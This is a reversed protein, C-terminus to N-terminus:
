DFQYWDSESDDTSHIGHKPPYLFRDSSTSWVCKHWIVSVIVFMYAIYFRRELNHYIISLNGLGLHSIWFCVIERYLAHRHHSLLFYLTTWYTILYCFLWIWWSLHRVLTFVVPNTWTGLPLPPHDKLFSSVTKPLSVPNTSVPSLCIFPHLSQDSPHWVCLPWAM